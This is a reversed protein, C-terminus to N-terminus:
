NECVNAQGIEVWFYLKAGQALIAYFKEGFALHKIM